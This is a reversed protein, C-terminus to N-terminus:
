NLHSGKKKKRNLSDKTAFGSVLHYYCKLEELFSDIRNTVSHFLFVEM